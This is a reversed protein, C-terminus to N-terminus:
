NIILYTACLRKYVTITWAVGSIVYKTSIIWTNHCFKGHENDYAYDLSLPLFLYMFTVKRFPLHPWLRKQTSYHYTNRWNMKIKDGIVEGVSCAGNCVVVGHGLESIAQRVDSFHFAGITNNYGLGTRQKPRLNLFFNCTRILYIKLLQHPSYRLEFQGSQTTWLTILIKM